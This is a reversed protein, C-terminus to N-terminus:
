SPTTAMASKWTNTSEDYSFFQQVNQFAAVVAAQQKEPTVNVKMVSDASNGMKQDAVAHGVSSAASSTATGAVSAGIGSGAADSVAGGFLRAVSSILSSVVSRKVAEKGVNKIMEGQGPMMVGVSEIPDTMGPAKFKVSVQNGNVTESVILSKIQEYSYSM